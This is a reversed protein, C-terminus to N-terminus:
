YEGHENEWIELKRTEVVERLSVVPIQPKALLLSKNIEQFSSIATVIVMDVDQSSCYDKPQLVPIGYVLSGEHKRDLFFSVKIQNSRLFEKALARGLDGAGYIGITKCMHDQFYSVLNENHELINLWEVACLFLERNKARIRKQTELEAYIKEEDM